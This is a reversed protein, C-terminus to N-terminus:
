WSQSRRQLRTVDEVPSPTSDKVAVEEDGEAGVTEKVIVEEEVIVETRGAVEEEIEVDAEYPLRL